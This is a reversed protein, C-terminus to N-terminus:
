ELADTIGKGAGGASLDIRVDPYIKRFEEAWRVAMPYLAWAGSLSITGKTNERTIVPNKSNSCSLVGISILLPFIINMIDVSRTFM